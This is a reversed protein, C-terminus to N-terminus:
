CIAVCILVVLLWLIASKGVGLKEMSRLPSTASTVPVVAPSPARNASTNDAQPALTLIRTLLSVLLESEDGLWEEHFVVAREGLSNVLLVDLERSLVERYVAAVDEVRDLLGSLKELKDWGATEHPASRAAAVAM